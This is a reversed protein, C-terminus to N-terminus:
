ILHSKALQPLKEDLGFVNMSGWMFEQGDLYWM